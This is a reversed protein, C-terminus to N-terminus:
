PYTGKGWGDYYGVRHALNMAECVDTALHNRSTTYVMTDDQYVIDYTTTYGFLFFGTQRRRVRYPPYWDIM